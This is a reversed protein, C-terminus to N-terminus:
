VENTNMQREEGFDSWSVAMACPCESPLKNPTEYFRAKSLKFHSGHINSFQDTPPQPLNSGVSGCSFTVDNSGLIEEAELLHSLSSM